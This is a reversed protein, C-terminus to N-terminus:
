TESRTINLIYWAWEGDTTYVLTRNVKEDFPIDTVNCPLEDGCSLCECAEYVVNIAVVDGLPCNVISVTQKIKEELTLQKGCEATTAKTKSVVAWAYYDTIGAITLHQKIAASLLEEMTQGLGCALLLM